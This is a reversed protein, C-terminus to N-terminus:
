VNESLKIQGLRKWKYFTPEKINYRKCIAPGSSGDAVMNIIEEQINRELAQFGSPKRVSSKSVCLACHPNVPNRYKSQPLLQKCKLCVKHPSVDGANKMIVPAAKVETPSNIGVMTCGICVNRGAVFASADRTEHCTHCIRTKETLKYM